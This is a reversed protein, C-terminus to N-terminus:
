CVSETRAWGASFQPRQNLFDYTLTAATNEFTRGIGLDAGFYGGDDFFYSIGAAGVFSDPENSSLVKTTVGFAPAKGGGFNWALGVMVTPDASAMSGAVIAVAATSSLLKKMDNYAESIIFVLCQEDCMFM